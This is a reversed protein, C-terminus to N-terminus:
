LKSAREFGIDQSVNKLFYHLEKNWIADALADHEDINKPYKRHSKLAEQMQRETWDLNKLMGYNLAVDNYIQKLDICFMPYGKPLNIMKGFLSCFVVWDYDAYWGYFEALTYGNRIRMISEDSLRISGMGISETKVYGDQTFNYVESAIQGNSKGYLSILKKFNSLSFVNDVKHHSQMHQQQAWISKFIPFLVNERLWYERPEHLNRDGQGTRDQWSYWASKIDFDKSVAYYTRNDEAVIGISILDIFHRRRGLFPKHFNEHFETDLYFKM